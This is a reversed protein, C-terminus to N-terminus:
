VGDGEHLWVEVGEADPNDHDWVRIVWLKKVWGGDHIWRGVTGREVAHALVALDDDRPVLVDLSLLAASRRNSRTYPLGLCVFMMAPAAVCDSGCNTGKSAPRWASIV